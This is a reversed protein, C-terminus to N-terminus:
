PCDQHMDCEAITRQNLHIMGSPQAYHVQFDNHTQSGDVILMDVPVHLEPIDDPGLSEDLFDQDESM